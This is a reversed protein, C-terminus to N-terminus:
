SPGPHGLAMPWYPWPHHHGALTPTPQSVSTSGAGEEQAPKEPVASPEGCSGSIISKGSFPIHFFM